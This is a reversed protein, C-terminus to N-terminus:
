LDFFQKAKEFFGKQVTSNHEGIAKPSLASNRSRNRIPFAVPHQMAVVGRFKRRRAWLM